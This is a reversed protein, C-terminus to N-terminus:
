KILSRGMDLLGTTRDSHEQLQLGAREVLAELGESAWDPYVYVLIQDCCKKLAAIFGNSRERPVELLRGIMLIALVYRKRSDWLGLNFFDGPIFNESFQPLLESAHALRERKIEIGFPILAANASCIKEILAGNGCGLDLVNGRCGALASLAMLVLPRHLREMTQLTSFGNDTHYWNPLPAQTQMAHETSIRRRLNARRSRAIDRDRRVVLGRPPVDSRVSTMDARAFGGVGV